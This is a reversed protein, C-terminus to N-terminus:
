DIYRHVPLSHNIWCFLLDSLWLFRDDAPQQIGIWRNTPLNAHDDGPFGSLQNSASRWRTAVSPQPALQKSELSLRYTPQHYSELWTPKWM